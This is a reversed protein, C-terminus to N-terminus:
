RKRMEKNDEKYDNIWHNVYYTKGCGWMGNIMTAYQPDDMSVYYALFSSIGENM